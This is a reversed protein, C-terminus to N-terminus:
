LFINLLVSTSLSYDRLNLRPGGWGARGCDSWLGMESPGDPVSVPFVTPRGGRLFFRM